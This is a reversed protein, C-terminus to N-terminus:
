GFVGSNIRALLEVSERYWVCDPCDDEHGEPPPGMTTGQQADNLAYPLLEDIDKRLKVITQSAASLAKNYGFMILNAEHRSFGVKRLYRYLRREANTVNFIKLKMGIDNNDSM